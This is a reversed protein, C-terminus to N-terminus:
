EKKNNSYTCLLYYRYYNYKTQKNNYSNVELQNNYINELENTNPVKKTSVTKSSINKGVNRKRPSKKGRSKERLKPFIETSDIKKM